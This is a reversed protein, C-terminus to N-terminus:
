DGYPLGRMSQEEGQIYDGWADLWEDQQEVLVPVDHEVPGFLAPREVLLGAPAVRVNALYEQEWGGCDTAAFPRSYDVTVALDISGGPGVHFCLRAYTQGGKALVFMVAWDTKGFVRAFTEEDTLSPSPCDGPHTHVWIRAFREPKLGSDVQQDFFDAVATDDFIMSVATCEQRVLQVDDVRLLDDAATIAFGGVETDDMDRLFLLKAWATPSFRIAPVKLKAPRGFRRNTRRSKTRRRTAKVAAQASKM